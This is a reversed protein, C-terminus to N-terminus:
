ATETPTDDVASGHATKGSDTKGDSTNGHATEHVYRALYLDMAEDFIDRLPVRQTVSYIRLQDYKEQNLALSTKTREVKPATTEARFTEGVTKTPTGSKQRPRLNRKSNDTM